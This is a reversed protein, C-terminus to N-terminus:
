YFKQTILKLMQFACEYVTLTNRNVEIEGHVAKCRLEYLLVDIVSACIADKDKCFKGGGIKLCGAKTNKVDVHIIPEVAKFVELVNKKRQVKWKKSSMQMELEQVDHKPLSITESEYPPALNEIIVDVSKNPKGSGDGEKYRKVTYAYHDIVKREERKDNPVMEVVGFCIPQQQSPFDKNKLLGEMRALEHQFAVCEYEKNASDMLKKIRDYLKNNTNGKFYLICDRDTTKGTVSVYWANFPIWRTIFLLPYNPTTYNDWTQINNNVM